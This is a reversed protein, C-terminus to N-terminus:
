PAATPDAGAAAQGTQRRTSRESSAVVFGLVLVALLTSVAAPAVLAVGILILPLAVASIAWRLM